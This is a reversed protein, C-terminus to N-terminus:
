LHILELKRRAPRIGHDDKLDFIIPHIDADISDCLKQLKEASRGHLILKAGTEAFRQAFAEGFGGTAGTVFVCKPTHKLYSSSM